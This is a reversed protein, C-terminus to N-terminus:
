AFGTKRGECFTVRSSGAKTSELILFALWQRHVVDASGASIRGTRQEKSTLPPFLLLLVM